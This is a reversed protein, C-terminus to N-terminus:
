ALSLRVTGLDSFQMEVATGAGLWLTQVCSGTMVTQGARLVDGQAALHNALWAVPVHPHGMVDAGTGTAVVAGDVQAAGRVTHLDPAQSRSVPTGLVIAAGFFDDAVLTPAGLTQWHEYRDDVIEIAPFYADIADAVDDTTIPTGRHVLDRGLRVAIECEVGVRVFGAAQLSVGDAYVRKSFIGGACPHAIAMYRQMVASTCGIKYGVIPGFDPALEAHLAAQIRYGEALDRPAADPPLPSLPTLSRRAAAIARAAQLHDTM